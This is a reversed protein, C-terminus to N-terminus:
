FYDKSNDSTNLALQISKNNLKYIPHANHYGGKKGTKIVLDTDRVYGWQKKSFYEMADKPMFEENLNLLLKAREKAKKARKYNSMNSDTTGVNNKALNVKSSATGSRVAALHQEESGQYDSALWAALAMPRISELHGSEVNAKGQKLGGVKGGQSQAYGQKRKSAEGSDLTEQFKTRQEKLEKNAKDIWNM